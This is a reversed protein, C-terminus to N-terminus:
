SDVVIEGRTNPFPEVTPGVPVQVDPRNHRKCRIQREECVMKADILGGDAGHKTTPTRYLEVGFQDQVTLSKPRVSLRRRCKNRRGEPKRTHIEVGPRAPSVQCM